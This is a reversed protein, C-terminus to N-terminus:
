RASSEVWAVVERNFEGTATDFAEVVASVRNAGAERQTIFTREARVTRDPAMLRARAAIVVVPARDPGDSYRAEFSSVDLDLALGDRPSERRDSVSVSRGSRLFEAELATRFLRESPGIWRAGALYAVSGGSTTLIRDGSAGEPFSIPNLVVVTRGSGPVTAPPDRDGFRYLAVPDPTDLLSCGALLLATAAAAISRIM